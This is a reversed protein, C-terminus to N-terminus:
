ELNLASALDAIELTDGADIVDVLERKIYTRAAEINPFQQTDVAGGTANRHIVTIPFALM